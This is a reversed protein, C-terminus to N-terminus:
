RVSTSAGATSFTHASVNIDDCSQLSVPLAPERDDVVFWDSGRLILAVPHITRPAGSRAKIRVVAQRRIADALAAIRPDSDEDQPAEFRFRHRATTIRDRVSDPFSEFLKSRAREGASALGLAALTSTPQSLIVAMAEAEDAALGTLRTRYNFGLEIGGQNGQHVIIPLGAETLADVDRLITRSAVELETALQGSTM